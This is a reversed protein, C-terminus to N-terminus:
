ADTLELHWGKSQYFLRISNGDWLRRVLSRGVACELCLSFKLTEPGLVGITPGTHHIDRSCSMATVVRSSALSGTSPPPLSAPCASFASNSAAPTSSASLHHHSVRSCV